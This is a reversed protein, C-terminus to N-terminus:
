FFFFVIGLNISCYFSLGELFTNLLYYVLFDIAKEFIEAYSFDVAM